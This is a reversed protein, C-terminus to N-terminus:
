LMNAMEQASILYNKDKDFKSIIEVPDRAMMQFTVKIPRVFDDGNLSTPEEQVIEEEFFPSFHQTGVMAGKIDEITLMGVEAKDFYVAMNNISEQSFHDLQRVKLKFTRM